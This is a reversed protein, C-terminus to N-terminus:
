GLPVLESLSPETTVTVGRVTKILDLEKNALNKNNNNKHYWM